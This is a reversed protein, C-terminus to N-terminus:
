YGKIEKFETPIEISFTSGNGNGDSEIWIIGGHAEVAMKCFSLGLGVTGVAIGENRLSTQEFKNFIKQHYRPKVGNGTDKVSIHLGNSGNYSELKVNVHGGIPTHRIGNDLLNALIRKILGKDVLVSPINNSNTFSVSIQKDAAKSNMQDIIENILVPLKTSEKKLQMKGQELKHIDLLQQIMEKLNDCSSLCNKAAKKQVESFNSKDLLLLEIYGSIAFLPNKLDHVIMHLLSDKLDELEKLRYNKESIEEYKELIKDSYKKIRLLSKTRILLETRDVPKSIFDDAGAEMAKIRDEKDSLATVMMVPISRFKEDQKLNWCVEFGNIEPMMVDLLVLDPRYNEIKKFADKGSLSEHIQYGESHLMAKLLKINREEDDVILIVPKDMYVEFHLAKPRYLLDSPAARAKETVRSGFRAEM